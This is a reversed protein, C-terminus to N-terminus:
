KTKMRKLDMALRRTDKILSQIRGKLEVLDKDIRNERELVLNLMKELLSVSSSYESRLGEIMQHIVKTQRDLQDNVTKEVTAQLVYTGSDGLTGCSASIFLTLLFIGKM